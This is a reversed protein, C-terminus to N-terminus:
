SNYSDYDEKELIKMMRKAIKYDPSDHIYYSQTIGIMRLRDRSKISSQMEKEVALL